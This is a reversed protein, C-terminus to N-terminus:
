AADPSRGVEAYGPRRDGDPPLPASARSSAGDRSLLEGARMASSASVRSPMTAATSSSRLRM